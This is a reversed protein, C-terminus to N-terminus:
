RRHYDAPRWQLNPNPVMYGHRAVNRSAPPMIPPLQYHRPTFGYVPPPAARGFSRNSNGSKFCFFASAAQTGVLCV